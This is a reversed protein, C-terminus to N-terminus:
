ESLSSLHVDALNRYFELLILTDIEFIFNIDKTGSPKRNWIRIAKWVSSENIPKINGHALSNRLKKLFSLSEYEPVSELNVAETLLKYGHFLIQNESFDFPLVKFYFFQEKIFLNLNNIKYVKKELSGEILCILSILCNLLTTVELDQKVFTDWNLLLLKKSRHVFDSEFNLVESM